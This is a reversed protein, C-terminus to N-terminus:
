SSENVVFLQDHKILVMNEFQDMGHFLQAPFCDTIENPCHEGM